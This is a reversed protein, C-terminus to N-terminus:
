QWQAKGTLKALGMNKRRGRELSQLCLIHSVAFYQRIKLDKIFDWGFERAM